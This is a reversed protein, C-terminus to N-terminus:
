TSSPKPHYALQSEVASQSFSGSGNIVEGRGVSLNHARGVGKLVAGRESADPHQHSHGAGLQCNRASIPGIIQSGNGLTCPASIDAGNMYRGSSGIDLTAHASALLQLGGGGFQNDDGIIIHGGDALLLCGPYFTNGSGITISGGNRVEFTVNPYLVNDRGIVTEASILTSFPDFLTNDTSTLIDLLETVRLFGRSTRQADIAALLLTTDVSGRM